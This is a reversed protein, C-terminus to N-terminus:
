LLGYAGLFKALFSRRVENCAEHSIAGIFGVVILNIGIENNDWDYRVLAIWGTDSTKIEAATQKAEREMNMMGHDWLTLPESMLWNGIPGPEARAPTMLCCLLAVTSVARLLARSTEMM